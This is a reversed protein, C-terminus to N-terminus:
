CVCVSLCVCVCVFLVCVCLCMSYLFFAPLCFVFAADYLCAECRMDMYVRGIMVCRYWVGVCVRLSSVRAFM